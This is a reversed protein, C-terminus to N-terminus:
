EAYQTGQWVAQDSPHIKWIHMFIGCLKAPHESTQKQFAGTQDFLYTKCVMLFFYM